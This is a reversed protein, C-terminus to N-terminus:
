QEAESDSPTADIQAARRHALALRWWGAQIRGDVKQPDKGLIQLLDSYTQDTTM